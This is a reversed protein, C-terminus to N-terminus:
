VVLTTVEGLYLSQSQRNRDVSMFAVYVQYTAGRDSPIQLLDEGTKRFMGSMTYVPVRDVVNYALMMIQDDRDGGKVESPDWTFKLKNQDQLAVAMNESLPLTGYSVNAKAPNIVLQDGVFEFANKLLDSKAANYAGSSRNFASFGEKVFYLLPQLWKHAMAFKGQNAAEGAPVRGAQKKYRGKIYPVGNRSSGITDGVKGKYSGNPGNILEGM